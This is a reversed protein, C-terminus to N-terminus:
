WRAARAPYTPMDGGNGGGHAHGHDFGGGHTEVTMTVEQMRMIMRAPTPAPGTGNGSMVVGTVTGASSRSQDIGNPVKQVHVTADQGHGKLALISEQSEAKPNSTYSYGLVDEGEGTASCTDSEAPAVVTRLLDEDPHGHAVRSRLISNNKSKNTSCGAQLEVDGSKSLQKHYGDRTTHRGYGSSKYGGPQGPTSCLTRRGMLVDLLPQLLPICSAVIITSGEILSWIVLDATDWSFDTGALSPLRASKYISVIASVSGIGLAFYELPSDEKGVCIWACGQPQPFPTTLM